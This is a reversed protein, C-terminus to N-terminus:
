PIMSSTSGSSSQFPRPWRSTAVRRQHRGPQRCCSSADRPPSFSFSLGRHADEDEAACAEDAPGHHLLQQRAAVLQRQEIAALTRGIEEGGDRPERQVPTVHCALRQAIPRPIDHHVHVRVKWALDLGGHRRQTPPYAAVDHAAGAGHVRPQFGVGDRFVRRQVRTCRLLRFVRAHLGVPRALGLALSAETGQSGLGADLAEDPPWDHDVARVVVGVAHVEPQLRHPAPPDHQRLLAQGDEVRDVGTVQRAEEGRHSLSAWLM